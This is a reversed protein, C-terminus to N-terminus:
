VVFRMGLPQAGIRKALVGIDTYDSGIYVRSCGVEHARRGLERLLAVAEIGARPAGTGFLHILNGIKDTPAWPYATVAVVGVTDDGRLSIAKDSRICAEAWVRTGERSYGNVLPAYTAEAFREFFPMEAM